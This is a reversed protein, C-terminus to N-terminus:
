LMWSIHHPIYIGADNEGSQLCDQLGQYLEARVDSQHSRIWRLKQTEIKVYM